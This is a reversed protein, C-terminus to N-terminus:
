ELEAVRRKLERGDRNLKLKIRHKDHVSASRRGLFEFEIDYFRMVMPLEVALEKRVFYRFGDAIFNAVAHDHTDIHLEAEIVAFVDDLQPLEDYTLGGATASPYAGAGGTSDRGVGVTVDVGSEASGQRDQAM